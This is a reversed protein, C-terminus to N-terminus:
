KLPFVVLTPDPLNAIAYIEKCKGDICFCLVPIDLGYRLKQEGEWTYAYISTCEFAEQKYDKLSKGSYLGYFGTADAAIDQYGLPDDAKYTVSFGEGSDPTYLPFSEQWVAVEKLSDDELWYTYRQKGQATLYAVHGQGDTDTCGQYTMFRLQNSLGAEAEDRAPYDRTVHLLVGATDTLHLMGREFCGYTCLRSNDLPFADITMGKPFTHCTKFSLKGAADDPIIQFLESKYSDYCYLTDRFLHLTRVKLWEGPAQGRMGFSGMYKFDPLKIWHFFSESKADIIILNDDVCKMEIPAGIILETGTDIKKHFLNVVEDEEKNGCSVLFSILIIAIGYYRM